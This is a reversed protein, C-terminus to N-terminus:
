TFYVSLLKIIERQGVVGKYQNQHPWWFHKITSWVFGGITLGFLKKFTNLYLKNWNARLMIFHLGIRTDTNRQQLVFLNSSLISLCALLVFPLCSSLHTSSCLEVRMGTNIITPTLRLPNALGNKVPSLRKIQPDLHNLYNRLSTQGCYGM